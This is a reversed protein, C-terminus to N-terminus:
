VSSPREPSFAFFRTAEVFHNFVGEASHDVKDNGFGDTAEGAVRHVTQDCDALQLLVARLNVKFFLSRYLLFGSM